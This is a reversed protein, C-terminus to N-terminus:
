QMELAKKAKDTLEYYCEKDNRVLFKQKILVNAILHETRSLNILNLYMLKYAIEALAVNNKM